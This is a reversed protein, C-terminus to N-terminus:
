ATAAQRKEWALHEEPSFDERYGMPGAGRSGSPRGPPPANSVSSGVSGANRCIRDLAAGLQFANAKALQPMVGEHTLLYHAVAAPDASQTMAVQVNIPFVLKSTEILAPLDPFRKAGDRIANTMGSYATQVAESVQRTAEQTRVQEAQQRARQESQHLAQATRMTARWDARADLYDEYSKYDGRQPEKPLQVRQGDGPPPQQGQLMAMLRLNNAREIAATQEALEARREAARRSETIENFRKQLNGEGAAAPEGAPAPEGAADAPASGASTDDAASTAQPAASDDVAVNSDDVPAPAAAPAAAPAGGADDIGPLVIADNDPM